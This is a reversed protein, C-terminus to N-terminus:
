AGLVTLSANYSVTKPAYFEGKQKTLPVWRDSNYFDFITAQKKPDTTFRFQDLSTLNVNGTLNLHKYLGALKDRKVKQRLRSTLTEERTAPETFSAEGIRNTDQTRYDYDEDEDQHAM